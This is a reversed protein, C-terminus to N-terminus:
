VVIKGSGSCKACPAKRGAQHADGYAEIQCYDCSCSGSEFCHSCPLIIIDNSM